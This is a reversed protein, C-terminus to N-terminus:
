CDDKSKDGFLLVRLAERRSIVRPPKLPKVDALAWDHKRIIRLAQPLPFEKVIKGSPSQIWLIGWTVYKPTGKVRIGLMLLGVVVSIVGQIICSLNIGEESKSQAERMNAFAKLAPVDGVRYNLYLSYDLRFSWKTAEEKKTIAM